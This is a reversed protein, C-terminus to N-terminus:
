VRYLFFTKCTPQDRRSWSQLKTWSDCLVTWNDAELITKVGCYILM